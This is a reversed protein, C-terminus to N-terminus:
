AEIFWEFRVIEEWFKFLSRSPTSRFYLNEPQRMKWALLSIQGKSKKFGHQLDVVPQQTKQSFCFYNKNVNPALTASLTQTSRYKRRKENEREAL